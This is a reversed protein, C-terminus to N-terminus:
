VHNDYYHYVDCLFGRVEKKSEKASRVIFQRIVRVMAIEAIYGDSTASHILVRRGCMDSPSEADFDDLFDLSIELSFYVSTPHLSLDACRKTNLYYRFDSFACCGYEKEFFHRDEKMTQKCAETLYVYQNKAQGVILRIDNDTKVGRTQRAYFPFADDM